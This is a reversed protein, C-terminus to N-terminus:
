YDGPCFSALYPCLKLM